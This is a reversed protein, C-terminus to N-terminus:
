PCPNPDSEDESPFPALNGSLDPDPAAESHGSVLPKGELRYRDSAAFGKGYGTPSIQGDLAYGTPCLPGEGVHGETVIVMQLEDGYSRISSESFASEEYNRVLFARGALVAGKVVPEAGEPLGGASFGVPGGAPTPDLVYASGGGRFLRFKRTGTPTSLTFPTYTLISGDAMGIFGAPGQMRGYEVSGLIPADNEPGEGGGGAHLQLSSTGNRLPDEGIFDADQLLIGLPLRETLGTLRLPTPASPIRAGNMPRDQGGEMASSSPTLGYSATRLTLSFGAVTRNGAAPFLGIQSEGGEAGPILSVLSVIAGGNWTAEVGIENRIEPSSNIATALASAALTRSGGSFDTDSVLTYTSDGRTFQVTEGASATTDTLVNIILTGREAEPAQPETFTRPESQWIPDTGAAPIRSPALGQNTVHGIDLPTGPYIPGGIKGTGLTTWFDMSAVVELARPNPIEPVQEFNNTSDYQQIPTGVQFARDSPIQGYRNTYDSVTRTSGDRTMYPDGQYATRNYTVYLQENFPLPLPLIHAVNNALAPVQTGDDGSGSTTPLNLRAAVYNNKNIFGRAFGFVVCEVVYELDDFSEGEVYQGSLSVDILDSPIVYTHDDANGTVDEAGGPVIFLSQKDVDSKLLNKPRGIASSLTVRDSNWAGEGAFERLDYVGYLRAIGLFPPLQIGKLGQTTLDTGIVNVDEYIRGQYGESSGGMNFYEGYVRGSTAGTQIFLSLVTSDSDAGGVVRFVSDAGTQSDGFLHNIGYFVPGTSGTTQHFPIDQRGFRPMFENPVAYGYDANPTFLGGGDVTIGTSVGQTYTSPFLRNDIGTTIQNRWLALLVRRYPRLMLTKSGADVFVEAERRTDGLYSGDGYAPALPASLGLSPLRNWTQVHQIPFYLEGEPVGAEDDFSPDLTTPAERVMQATNIGVMAVRDIENAVRATGGRSPGYLLTTDLVAQSTSPLSMLGKWPNEAGGAVGDLDTLVIVASAGFDGDETHTFQSRVEAELGTAALLGSAAGASDLGVREVVLDEDTAGSETTYGVTGAGVVRFVGANQANTTDGTLVLYLESSRGTRDRGGATLMDFLNRSGQLLLNTIGTTSLSDLDGDPYWVGATDFDQGPFRVLSLGSPVSGAALTEVGTDRLNPNVVGGLVIFPREFNYEPLPFMPGPHNAAPQDSVLPEGWDEEILRLRFPTQLGSVGAGEGSIEDRTKWYERPTVFRVIRNDAATRVTARAGDNGSAGGISLRIVAGNTWGGSNPQFGDPVFGAAVEWSSAGSTYDSIDTPTAGSDSPKLFVTVNSEVVSADSFVTRIGDPGDLATTQNPVATSGNAFLTDVETIVPGETDSGAAQKYSSKLTNEFLKGLNHALLAQYDWQGPTVGKRLDLIDTDTIQDAAKGDPRFIFFKISAGAAHPRAQTGNRGRGGTTRITITGPSVGTNVSDIGIVEDDIVLFTSTWDLDVNDFGSGALGDVQVVGTTDAAIANTLTIASFTRTAEVPDTIAATNPNRNFAGNQNANGGNTRSVFNASNRRFVGCVPIAYVYGDMTKLANTADGDGARWLGSDGLTQRMNAFTFGTVPDDAGGQALVNPDDLGDPFSALDVSEGLGTGRGVVRLRYQLQVRETTEFGIAPDELDDAINTGGFEVNGYKYLTSASPKNVTSPNPAVQAQWVELFVFDIRSDSSPPGFLNIRNSTDGDAVNTGTVPVIWGNVNAWLTPAEEGSEVNGFKFWNSWMENTVFDSDAAFPDLLFGSHMQSRIVNAARELDVQFMLNLESDLPPKNAQWVVGQFQRQIASLTRSVGNGFDEPM